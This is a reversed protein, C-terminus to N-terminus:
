CEEPVTPGDGGANSCIEGSLFVGTNTEATLFLGFGPSNGSKAGTMHDTYIYIDPIFERLM